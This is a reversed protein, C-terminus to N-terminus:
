YRTGFSVRISERKDWRERRVPIAYDVRVPGFPSVWELGIGVSARLSKSDMIGPGKEEAGWLSGADVFAKGFLATDFPRGIPVSLEATTAYYYKGGLADGGSRPGVGGLRFGRLNDGGLFYRSILKLDDNIPVVVGGQGAIMIVIEDFIEYFYQTELKTRVYHETGGLGGYDLSYRIIWGRTTNQRRDRTDWTTMQGVESTWTKGAQAKIADSAKADVNRIQDYRLTYKVTQRANEWLPWGARLAGGLTREDFSSTRQYDRDYGFLDFGAMLDRDFLYPETFSLDAEKVRTGAAVRARVDRGLGLLNPEHLVIDGLLGWSTSYGAGFSIEGTRREEVNVDIITKDPASGPRTSVEVKEFFGLEQLRRQGRRVKAEDFPDDDSLRFQRRIIKDHTRTNGTINIREVYHRRGEFVEYEVDVTATDPNRSINARVAAFAYGRSSAVETLAAITQEVYDANYWAGERTRARSRLAAANLRELRTTVAIRGFKYRPGEEITYVLVPDGDPSSAQEVSVVRFDAYGSALYFRSLLEKDREVQDPHSREGQHFLRHWLSGSAGIKDRLTDATFSKNGVFGVRPAGSKQALASPADMAVCTLWLALLGIARKLLLL